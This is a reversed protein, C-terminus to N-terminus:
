TRLFSAWASLCIVNWAPRVCFTKCPGNMLTVGFIIRFGNYSRKQLLSFVICVEVFLPIVFMAMQNPIRLDLRPIPNAWAKNEHVLLYIATLLFIFGTKIFHRRM